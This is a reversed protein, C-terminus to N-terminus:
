SVGFFICCLLSLVGALYGFEWSGFMSWSVKCSAPHGERWYWKSFKPGSLHSRVAALILFLFRSNECANWAIAFIKRICSFSRLVHCAAAISPCVFNLLSSGSVCFSAQVSLAWLMIVIDCSYSVFSCSIRWFLGLGFRLVVRAFSGSSISFSFRRLCAM